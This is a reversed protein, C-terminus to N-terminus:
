KVLRAGHREPDFGSPWRTHEDYRARRLRVGDLDADTLDADYLLTDILNAYGLYAGGLQASQLKANRLNACRLDASRLDAGYFLCGRLCTDALVAQQLNAASLNAGRLNAMRINARVLTARELCARRLNSCTLRAWPMNAGTFDSGPLNAFRLNAHPLSAGRLMAGVLSDAEVRLLVEKTERHKIEIVAGGAGVASEAGAAISMTVRRPYLRPDEWIVDINYHRRGHSLPFQGRLPYHCNQLDVDAWIKYRTVVPPFLHGPLTERRHVAGDSHHYVMTEDGELDIQIATAQSDIAQAVILRAINDIWDVMLAMEKAVQEVSASGGRGGSGVGRLKDAEANAAVGSENYRPTPIAPL